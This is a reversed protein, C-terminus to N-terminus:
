IEVHVRGNRCYVPFLKIRKKSVYLCEGTELSFEYNHWPCRVIKDEMGYVLEGPDSPLMTGSVEGQCIPAGYHPCVNMIAKFDGSPERLIGM